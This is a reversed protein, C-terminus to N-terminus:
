ARGQEADQTLEDATLNLAKALRKAEEPYPNRKGNEIASIDSQVMRAKWGLKTQSWKRAHRAAKLKTTM